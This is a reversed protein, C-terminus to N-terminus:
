PGAPPIVHLDVNGDVALSAFGIDLRSQRQNM